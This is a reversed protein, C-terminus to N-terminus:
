SRRVSRRARTRPAPREPGDFVAVDPDADPGSLPTSRRGVTVGVNVIADTIAVGARVVADDLVVCRELRAGPEIVVHRGLVSRHVSGEVVAGPALISREITAAHGVRAPGGTISGTLIPWSQDDPDFPPEDDVLELHARHFARLTGVDRWYGELVHEAADGAEVFGPVLTDGYDGAPEDDDLRELADLLRPGDFAFVETCVRDGRPADPKYAFEVIRGDDDARVWAFRTPDDDPHPTTTVATLGIGRALHEDVVDRLDLRYVHDASMTVVVDPAYTALAARQKVLADANGHAVAADGEDHEAAQYPPLLRLGGHTRDLDWPRGGALHDNLAHPEYQVLVWVDDFGSHAVNSLAVDILRFMGAFPVSPKARGATLPGLRSGAGGALVVVLVRPRSM